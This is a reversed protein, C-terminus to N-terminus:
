EASDSSALLCKQKMLLEMYLMEWQDVVRNLSYNIEIYQRGITGMLRRKNESLNMISLMADALAKSNKPPVLIGTRGDQVVDSNGGVDTAVIPLGTASAELLVMPMGEWASSMVYGDAMNMLEPMNDHAITGLFDVHGRIGLDQAYKEIEPRLSGDGVIVLMAEPRSQSVLTFAQLMNPYDKSPDLRGVAFWMFASEFGQKRRIKSRIKLNPCFRDTDVGNPIYCIKDRPVAGIRVYRELGAKSVQTTLDCLPDTFRYLYDIYRGGELTSHATCILITPHVMSYALRSLLNAHVMHSHVIQPQYTRILSIIRFILRPDPLKRRSGLSYVPINASKLEKVYDKLPTISIVRVEWGRSKLRDALCVLQTEAGGYSLGTSIFLIKKAERSM